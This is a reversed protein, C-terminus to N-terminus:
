GQAGEGHSVHSDIMSHTTQSQGPPGFIAHYATPPGFNIGQGFLPQAHWWLLHSGNSNGM